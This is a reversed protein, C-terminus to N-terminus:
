PESKGEESDCQDLCSVLLNVTYLLTRTLLGTSGRDTLINAANLPVRINVVRERVQGIRDVVTRIVQLNTKINCNLRSRTKLTNEKGCTGAGLFTYSGRREEMHV